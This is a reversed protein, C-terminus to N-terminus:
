RSPTKCEPFFTNAVIKSAQGRTANSGPRFYPLNDPLVCPEGLGGCPYGQMIGLSTLRWIYDYFTHGPPVDEFQQAGPPQTLGAAEAVIKSIQGRTINNAPRFYPLNDPPVCPEGAGGCPYGNIIGRDALRWVFDYFTHGPPVDEFQQSGAPESFGASNSVIKALQGRTVLNGPRFCPNGTECGTNYGNLIDRCALCRITSYFTHGEPVDTFQLTCATATATASGTSPTSTTTATGQATATVAMTFTAQATATSTSAATTATATAATGTPSPSPQGTNTPVVTSTGTSTPVSTATRTSTAVPPTPTGGGFVDGLYLKVGPLEGVAWGQGDPFVFVDRLNNRTPSNVQTWTGGQYHIIASTGGTPSVGVAWGEAANIMHIGLLNVSVPSAVPSWTGGTYHLIQGGYGVAWGENANLMQIAEITTSGPNPTVQTWTGNQYHLMLGLTGGAWGENADVMDLSWLNTTTPSTYNTWSTGDFHVIDGGSGVAWGDTPSVMSVADMFNGPSSQQTWTSGNWYFAAQLGVAWVQNSSLMDVDKMPGPGFAPPQFETWSSGNWHQLGWAPPTTQNLVGVAWGDNPAVFDLGYLGNTLWQTTAVTWATGNWRYITGRSAVSWGDNPALMFISNLPAGTPANIETWVSGDWHWTNSTWGNTSGVAWADTPSISHVEQLTVAGCSLQCVAPPPVLTWNTGNWRLTTGGVGVVWGENPASFDIGYFIRNNVPSPVADWSVGNWRAIKGQQGGQPLNTGGAAWGDNTSLMDLDYMTETVSPSAVIESWNTGDWHGFRANAGSTWGDTPSLMSISYMTASVSDPVTTWATGDYRIFTGSAYAWVSNTTLMDLTNVANAGIVKSADVADWSNGDWHALIGDGGSAWADTASVADIDTISGGSLQYRTWPSGTDPSAAATFGRALMLSLAALLAMAFLAILAKGHRM